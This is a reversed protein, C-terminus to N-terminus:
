SIDSGKAREEVFVLYFGRYSLPVPALVPAAGLPHVVFAPEGYARAKM